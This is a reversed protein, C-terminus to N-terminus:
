ASAIEKIQSPLSALWARRAPLADEQVACVLRRPIRIM